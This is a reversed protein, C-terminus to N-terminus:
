HLSWGSSRVQLSDHHAPSPGPENPHRRVSMCGHMELRKIELRQVVPTALLLELEVDAPNQCLIAAQPPLKALRREMRALWAGDGAASAQRRAEHFHVRIYTSGTDVAKCCAKSVLRLTLCDAGHARMPCNERPTFSEVDAVAALLAPAGHLADELGAPGDPGSGSPEAADALAGLVAPM